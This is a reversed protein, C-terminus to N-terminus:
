RRRSHEVMLCRDQVVFIGADILQRAVEDHRIGSQLWVARPKAAVLDPVHPPLDAPRRFVDVLDVPPDVEAVTRHVPQGLIRTVDPYYVPVPVVDFGVDALYRAVYFAPQDAQKETKIGLVAIRRVSGLLAAIEDSRTLERPTGLDMRQYYREQFGRAGAGAEAGRRTVTASESLLLHPLPLPARDTVM